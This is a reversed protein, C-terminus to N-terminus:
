LITLRVTKNLKNGCFEEDYHYIGSEPIDKLLEELEKEAQSLYEETSKNKSQMCQKEISIQVM